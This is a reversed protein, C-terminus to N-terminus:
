IRILWDYHKLLSLLFTCYVIFFYKLYPAAFLLFLEIFYIGLAFCTRTRIKFVITGFTLMDYCCLEYVIHLADLPIPLRQNHCIMYICLLFSRMFSCRGNRRPLVHSAGM